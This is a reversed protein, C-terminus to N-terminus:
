IALERLFAIFAQASEAGTFGGLFYRHQESRGAALPDAGFMADFTSDLTALDSEIVYAARSSPYRERFRITATGGEGPEGAQVAVMALPKDTAMYDAAIGSVDTIMAHSANFADALPMDTAAEGWVHPRGTRTADAAIMADIRAIAEEGSENYRGAPHRRFIVTHGRELLRQLIPEGVFVSSLNKDAEQHPWTPAYLVVPQAVANIPVEATKFDETQPRGLITFKSLPIEIGAATFRDINAQGAAVIIDFQNISESTSGPKDSEGHGLFVHTLWTYALFRSNRPANHVYLAVKLSKPFAASMQATKVPAVIPDSNAVSMVKFREHTSAVVIYPLGTRRIYPTWMPIHFYVRGGYPIAIVPAHSEIARQIHRRNRWYDFLPKALWATLAASVFLLGISLWVTAEVTAAILNALSIAVIVSKTRRDIKPKPVRRPPLGDMHAAYPADSERMRVFIFGFALAALALISAFAKADGGSRAICIASALLPAILWAGMRLSVLNKM